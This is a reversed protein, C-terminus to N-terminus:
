SGLQSGIDNLTNTHSQDSTRDTEKIMRIKSTLEGQKALMAEEDLERMKPQLLDLFKFMVDDEDIVTGDSIVGRERMDGLYGRFEGFLQVLSRPDLNGFRVRKDLDRTLQRLTMMITEKEPFDGSDGIVRADWGWASCLVRHGGELALLKCYSGTDGGEVPDQAGQKAFYERLWPATLITGEEDRVNYFLKEYVKVTDSSMGILTGIQKYELEACLLLAELRDKLLSQGTGASRYIDNAQFYALRSDSRARRRFPTFM